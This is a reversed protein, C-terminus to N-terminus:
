TSLRGSSTPCKEPSNVQLSVSNPRCSAPPIVENQATNASAKRERQSATVEGLSGLQRRHMTQCKQLSDM